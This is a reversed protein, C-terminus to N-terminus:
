IGHLVEEYLGVIRQSVVSESFHELVHVRANACLKPYDPTNLVWEIGTKLDHTDFPTALYGSEQHKVLDRLGSVAFAVVPTNCSLSEMATYGLAEQRSPVILVDLANYLAILSANDKLTGLYHVKFPLNFMHASAGFVVLEIQTSELKQLAELLLDCGKIPNDIEMAGFGVLKKSTNLGLLSRCVSKDLPKYTQTDIPNPIVVHTKDKLLASQAACRSIWSSVGVICLHPIKAYAREKMGFGFTALDREFPSNLICSHKYTHENDDNYYHDGGTFAWMDHLSWVLPANIEPLDRLPLIGRGLWHLHVIDPKLANLANVVESFPLWGLNFTGKKRKPYLLIPAKDLYPRVLAWLKGLRTQPHLIRDDVVGGRTDQVWVFSDVGEKLLASHLRLCARAAGGTLTANLHIVKM